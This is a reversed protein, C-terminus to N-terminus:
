LLGGEEFEKKFFAPIEAPIALFYILKSRVLPLLCSESQQFCSKQRNQILQQNQQQLPNQFVLTMERILSVNGKVEVERESKAEEEKQSTFDGVEYEPDLQQIPQKLGIALKYM